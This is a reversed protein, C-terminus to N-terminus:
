KVQSDSEELKYSSERLRNRGRKKYILTWTFRKVGAALTEVDIELQVKWKNSPKNKRQLEIFSATSDIFVASEPHILQLLIDKKALELLVIEQTIGQSELTQGESCSLHISLLSFILLVRTMKHKVKPLKDRSKVVEGILIWRM